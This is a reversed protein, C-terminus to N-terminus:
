FGMAEALHRACLVTDDGTRAREEACQECETAEQYTQEGRSQQDLEMLRELPDAPVFASPDWGPKNRLRAVGEAVLKKKQRNSPKDSM